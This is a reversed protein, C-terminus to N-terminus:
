GGLLMEYYRLPTRRYVVRGRPVFGCKEYFPGAGADADYADLRIADGRWDRAVQMTAELCRRGIGQGQRDPMVAMDVLYLPRQCPTFHDVNIAWPKRTALRAVAVLRSRTRGIVVRSHKMSALVGRDTAEGSWHGVGFRKTLDAATARRLEAITRADDPTAECFTVRVM